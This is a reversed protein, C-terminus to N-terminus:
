QRRMPQRPVPRGLMPRQVSNTPPRRGSPPQSSSQSVNSNGGSIKKDFKKKILVFIIGLVLLGILVGLVIIWPFDSDSGDDEDDGDLDIVDDDPGVDTYTCTGWADGICFQNGIDGDGCSRVQGNICTEFAELAEVDLSITNGTIQTLKILIDMIGDGELDVTQEEGTDLTLIIPDSKIEFTVSTGFIETVNISHLKVGNLTFQLKEQNNINVSKRTISRFDVCSGTCGTEENEGVSLSLDYKNLMCFQNENSDTTKIYIRYKEDDTLIVSPAELSFEVSVPESGLSINEIDKDIEARSNLEYLGAESIIEFSNTSVFNRAQWDFVLREGLGLEKDVLDISSNVEFTASSFDVGVPCVLPTTVSIIIAESSPATGNNLCVNTNVACRVPKANKVEGVDCDFTKYYINKTADFGDYRAKFYDEKFVMKVENNKLYKGLIIQRDPPGDECTKHWKIM